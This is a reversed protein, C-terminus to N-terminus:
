LTPGLMDALTTYPSRIEQDNYAKYIITGPDLLGYSLGSSHSMLHRITISGKAPETDKLSTGGPKLVRRNGLQPIYTEIPDDLQFRDEEFLLLVACSTILRTNSFVRFIHDMRLPIDRERDAWGFCNLDVLDRGVLVASSVGALLNAKVYRSMAEHVPRFDYNNATVMMEEL